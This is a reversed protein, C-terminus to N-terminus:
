GIARVEYISTTGPTVGADIVSTTNPPLVGIRVFPGSGTQRWLAFATEDGSNDTWSLFVQTGSVVAAILGSPAPPAPPTLLFAHSAGGPASGVGVIPGRGTI